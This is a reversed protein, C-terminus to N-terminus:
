IRREKQEYEEITFFAMGFPASRLSTGGKPKQFNILYIVIGFPSPIIMEILRFAHPVDHTIKLFVIVASIFFTPKQGLMSLNFVQSCHFVNM